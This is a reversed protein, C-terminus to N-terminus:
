WSSIIQHHGHPYFLSSLCISRRKWKTKPNLRYFEELQFLLGNLLNLNAIIKVANSIIICLRPLDGLYTEYCRFIFYNMILIIAHKTKFNLDQLKMQAVIYKRVWFISCYKHFIILAKNITKDNKLSFWCNELYRWNKNLLMWIHNTSMHLFLSLKVKITTM